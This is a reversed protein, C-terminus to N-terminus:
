GAPRLRVLAMVALPAAAAVRLPPNPAALPALALGATAGALCAFRWERKV